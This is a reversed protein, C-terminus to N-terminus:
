DSNYVPCPLFTCFALCALLLIASSAGDDEMNSSSRKFKGVKGKNFQIQKQWKEQLKKAEQDVKSVMSYTTCSFCSYM